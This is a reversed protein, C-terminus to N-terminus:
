RVRRGPVVFGARYAVGGARNKALDLLTKHGCVAAVRTDACCRLLILDRHM